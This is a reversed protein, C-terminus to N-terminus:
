GRRSCAEHTEVHEEFSKRVVRAGVRSELTLVIQRALWDLTSVAESRNGFVM